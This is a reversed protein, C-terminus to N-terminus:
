SLCISYTSQKHSFSVTKTKQKKTAMYKLYYAKLILDITFFLLIVTCLRLQMRCTRGSNVKMTHLFNVEM